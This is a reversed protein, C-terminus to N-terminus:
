VFFSELTNKNELNWGIADSITSLPQLFAKDFQTYYDICNELEFEKPISDYFSICNDNIKNPFKLYIYKIKDKEKIKDYKKDLGFKNIYYNYLLSGRVQIPAGKSYIHDEDPKKVSYKDLGSVSRPFSILSYDVNEAEKKVKSIYELLGDRDNEVIYQYVNKLCERYYAPVSSRATELGTVSLKPVNYRVGESDLVVVFYRKKAVWVGVSAIKERKMKMSSSPSNVIKALKEYSEDIFPQFYKKAIKDVLDVDYKKKTLKKLIPHFHIYISDTDSAIIYDVGFTKLKENIFDSVCKEIWRISLRGSTTISEAIITNYYRFYPNGLVGYASNISIKKAMQINDYKSILNRLKETSNNEYEQETKIKLKKYKVRDNYVSEILIPLIGKKNRKYRAGNAAVICRNDRNFYNGNLVAEISMNNDIGPLLTEPSLNYQLILHPYLSALDYSVVWEFRGKIPDKVYAGSYKQDKSGKKLPPIAIKKKKLYNYIYSDWVRTQAFVDRFNVKADYALTIALDILKLKNDLENILLVDRINYEVFKNWDKEYFEKFTSYESHDLKRSGLEVQAIYDLKYSERNVYTFKKYLELYDLIEVGNIDVLLVQKNFTKDYAERIYSTKFPSLEKASGKGLVKEIRNFIYPLDFHKINWGSVVEINHFTKIFSELLDEETERHKYYINKGFKRNCRNLGYVITKKFECFYCSILLIKEKPDKVDPFGHETTTEIDIYVRRVNKVDFEFNDYNDSIYKYIYNIHGYTHDKNKENDIVEELHKDCEYLSDFKMEKLDCGDFGVWDTNCFKKTKKFISTSYKVSRRKYEKLISDYYKEYIYNGRRFVTLYQSM